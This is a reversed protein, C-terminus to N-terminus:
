QQIAKKGGSFRNIKPIKEQLLDCNFSCIRDVDSDAFILFFSKFHM